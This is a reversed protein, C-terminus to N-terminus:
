ADDKEQEDEATFDDPLMLEKERDIERRRDPEHDEIWCERECDPCAIGYYGHLDCVPFDATGGTSVTRVLERPKLAEFVHLMAALSPNIENMYGGSLGQGM